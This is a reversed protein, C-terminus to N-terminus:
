NVTGVLGTPAAPVKGSGSTASSSYCQNADFNLVNGTGDAPGHMVNLYCDQAPISNAHAAWAISFTGGSCQSAATAQAGAYTGGNCVGLNGSSVDPGVPPWPKGAPWWAPTSQYYLSSPLTHALSGFYNSSFNASLYAGAAPSAETSNWQTAGKVVDWNGWRMLTNFAIPDCTTVSEDSCSQQGALGISYISTNENSSGSIASTSTAYEQYQKHYGPQGLVNGVISQGRVFSRSVIPNTVTTGGKQWGTLMNRFLTQQDSSGWADDAWIGLFDNGEWLIMGNGAGHSTYAATVYGSGTTVNDVSLNYDIVAGSGQNFMLANSVQQFINNEVLFASSEDSEVVYSQSAHSQSQYFYSDRVVDGMSQYLVVHARAANKSRVNKVWCQYCDYLTINTHPLATGDITLNELGDNRVTGAWWVGPAQSSRINSFYVGPSITVTYTGNGNNTVGTTYTVQQESHTVGNIFRGNNNGGSTGEYGCNSTNVDCIYVGGTDSTDNAQDLIITANLPPAGGCNSFTLSTSNQAYGATWACQRSGSPPTASSDGAYSHTADIMCIGGAFGGCSTDAAGILTTANPGAGRLVQHGQTGFTIGAVYYTGSPIKVVNHTADCSALASQIAQTNASAAGSNDATLSPQVSCNATYNPITFGASSWDIARSHDLFTSWAQSFAIQSVAPLILLLALFRLEKSRNGLFIRDM